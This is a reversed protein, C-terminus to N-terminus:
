YNQLSNIELKWHLNGQGCLTQFKGRPHMLDAANPQCCERMVGTQGTEGRLRSGQECM